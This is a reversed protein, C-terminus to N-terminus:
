AGLKQFSILTIARQGTNQRIITTLELIGAITIIPQDMEIVGSQMETSDEGNKSAWSVFYDTPHKTETVHEVIRDLQLVEKVLLVAYKDNTSLVTGEKTGNGTTWRVIDGKQLQSRRM